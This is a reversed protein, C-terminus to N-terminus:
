HIHELDEFTLDLLPYKEWSQFDFHWWESPYVEFGHRGMISILTDRNSAAISDSLIAFPGAKETFDDYNTPMQLYEGSTLDYITIDVACGRNHRSGTFPSAVYTTDHYVEYFKVTASYPRYADFLVLGLNRKKLDAEVSQLAMAAPLRLYAVANDPYIQEGTFNNTTAYRLDVICSDLLQTLDILEFEPHENLQNNYEEIQYIPTIGYKYTDPSSCGLLAFLILISQKHM